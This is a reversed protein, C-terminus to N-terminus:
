PETLPHRLGAIRPAPSPLSPVHARLAPRHDDDLVIRMDGVQHVEIQPPFPEPHEQGTVALLSQREESLVVGADHDEVDAQGAGAVAEVDAAVDASAALHRDQEEGRAVVLDIANEPELQAGVVIQDLRERRPFQHRPHPGDQPSGPLARRGLFHDAQPIDLHVQAASLRARAPSTTASVM